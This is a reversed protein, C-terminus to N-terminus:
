DLDAVQERLVGAWQQLNNLHQLQQLQQQWETDSEGSISASEFDSVPFEADREQLQFESVANTTRLVSSAASQSLQKALEINKTRLRLITTDAMKLRQKLDSIKENLELVKLASMDVADADRSTPQVVSSAFDDDEGSSSATVQHRVLKSSQM